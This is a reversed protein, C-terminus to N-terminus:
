SSLCNNIFSLLCPGATHCIQNPLQSQIIDLPYNTPSFRQVVESSCYPYQSLFMLCLLLCILPVHIQVTPLKISLRVSAVYFFHM